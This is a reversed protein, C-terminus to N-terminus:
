ISALPWHLLNPILPSTSLPIYILLPKRASTRRKDDHLIVYIQHPKAALPVYKAFAKELLPTWFESNQASHMFVLKDYYTPLRDDVIVDTWKGYQWFRFRFIGAYNEGFSQDPPVVNYLLDKHSCLSAVAALLWCDGTPLPFLLSSLPVPGQPLLPLRRCGAALLWRYPSPLPPILPSCTRTPASPPSPLWCGATVQLSLSSSPHSPFLDKHSCLSAVAALLWCDGTPLPFLLSSLPVPGRPLLPLRRCGAALLWRYPSPLPPILPSCTRTPASPPSPLWCGATVQLSLSSSPHSPFLDKHSCLSAVAALLWCDGTPLPFLLSSLPVPGQPLLPLYHWGIIM